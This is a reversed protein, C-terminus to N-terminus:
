APRHRASQASAPRDESRHCNPDDCNTLSSADGCLPENSRLLLLLAELQRAEDPEFRRLVQM